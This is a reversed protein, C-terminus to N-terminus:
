NASGFPNQQLPSADNRLAARLADARGRLWEPHRGGIFKGGRATEYVRAAQTVARILQRETPTYGNAHAWALERAVRTYGDRYAAAPTTDATIPPQAFMDLPARRQRASNPQANDAPDSTDDPFNLDDRQM